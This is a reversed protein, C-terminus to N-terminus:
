LFENFAILKPFGSGVFKLEKIVTLSKLIVYQSIQLIKCM